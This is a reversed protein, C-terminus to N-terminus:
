GIILLKVRVEEKGSMTIYILCVGEWEFMYCRMVVLVVAFALYDETLILLGCTKTATQMIM